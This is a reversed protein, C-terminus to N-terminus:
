DLHSSMPFKNGEGKFGGFITDLESRMRELGKIVDESHLDNADVNRPIFQSTSVGNTLEEAFKEIEAPTDLQMERVARLLKMWDDPTYYTGGYFPRGDALAFCNLPWGANQNILRVANLYYKDIETREERDVKICVFHANMYDAITDNMFSEREMVHCW